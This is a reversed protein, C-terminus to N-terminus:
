WLVTCLFSHMHEAFSANHIIQLTRTCAEKRHHMIKLPYMLHYAARALAHRAHLLRILGYGDPIHYLMTFIPLAADTEDRMGCWRAAQHPAAYAPHARDDGTSPNPPALFFPRAIHMSQVPLADPFRMM